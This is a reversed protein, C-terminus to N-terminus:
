QNSITYYRTYNGTQSMTGWDSLLKVVILCLRSIIVQMSNNSKGIM